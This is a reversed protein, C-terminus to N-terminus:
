FGAEPGEAAPLSEEELTSVIMSRVRGGFELLGSREVASPGM